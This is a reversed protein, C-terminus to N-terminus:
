DMHRQDFGLSKARGSRGWRELLGALQGGVDLIALQVPEARLTDLDRGAIHYSREVPWHEAIWEDFLEFSYWHSEYDTHTRIHGTEVAHAVSLENRTLVHGGKVLNCDGDYVDVVIQSGSDYARKYMRPVQTYRPSAYTDPVLWRPQGSVDMTSEYGSLAFSEVAERCYASIIAVGGAEEVARRMARFLEMAGQPGQMVGISNCLSAAVPFPESKMPQLDFASGHHLWINEDILRSLGSVCLKEKALELMQLSFDVGGISVLREALLPDYAYAPNSCRAMGLARADAGDVDSTHTTKMAYRLHLRGSGCGVDYLSVNKRRESILYLLIRDIIDEEFAEYATVEPHGV